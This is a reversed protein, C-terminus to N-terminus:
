GMREKVRLIIVENDDKWFSDVVSEFCDPAVMDVMTNKGRDVLNIEEERMEEIKKLKLIESVRKPRTPPPGPYSNEPGTSL